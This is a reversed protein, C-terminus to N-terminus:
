PVVVDFGGITDSSGSSRKSALLLFVPKWGTTAGIYGSKRDIEEGNENRFSVTVRRESNFAPVFVRNLDGSNFKDGHEAMRRFLYQNFKTTM